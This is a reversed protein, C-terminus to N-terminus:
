GVYGRRAMEYLPSLERLRRVERVVAAAVYEGEEETTFRGLGFRLSGRALEDSVGLARLVYSPEPNASTCASGSSVAVDRLAVILAEGDIYGFSLDLNGPLRETPHGNLFVQDLEATISQYLRQCLGRQRVAEQDEESLDPYRDKVIAGARVQTIEQPVLEEDFLGGLIRGQKGAPVGSRAGAIFLGIRLAVAIRRLM